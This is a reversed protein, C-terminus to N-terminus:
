PIITHNGTNSTSVYINNVFLSVLSLSMRTVLMKELNQSAAAAFKNNWVLVLLVMLQMPLM